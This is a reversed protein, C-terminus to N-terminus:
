SIMFSLIKVFRLSLLFIVVGFCTVIMTLLGVSGVLFMGVASVVLSFVKGFGVLRLPAFCPRVEKEFLLLILSSCLVMFTLFLGVVFVRVAVFILLFKTVGLMLFLLRSISFLALWIVLYLCVLDLGLWLMLIGNFALRLLELLFFIFLVMGLVVRVLWTWSVIFGGLKLRGFLWIGVFYVFGIGFWVLLQTMGLPGKWFALFLALLPLLSVVVRRVASRLKRLSESALFSAEIGHLAAPLYMSRRGHFDLPLFILVLRSLVM